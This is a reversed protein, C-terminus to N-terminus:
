RSSSAQPARLLRILEASKGLYMWQSGESNMGKEHYSLLLLTTITIGSPFCLLPLLLAKAKEAFPVGFTAPPRTEDSGRILPSTSFRAALACVASALVPGELSHQSYSNSSNLSELFPLSLSPFLSGMRAFFIPYLHQQIETKPMDADLDYFRDSDPRAHAASAFSPASSFSQPAASPAFGTPSVARSFSPAAAIDIRIEEVGSQLASRGFPSSNPSLLLTLLEVRLSSICDRWSM